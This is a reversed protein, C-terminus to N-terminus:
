SCETEVKKRCCFCKKHTIITIYYFYMGKHKPINADATFSVKILLPQWCLDQVYSFDYYNAYIIKNGIHFHFNIWELDGGGRKKLNFYHFNGYTNAPMVQSGTVLILFSLKIM